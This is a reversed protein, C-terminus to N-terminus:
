LGEESLRLWVLQKGIGLQRAVEAYSMGLKRLKRAAAANKHWTARKMHHANKANTGLQTGCSCTFPYKRNAM